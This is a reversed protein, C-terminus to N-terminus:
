TLPLLPPKRRRHCFLPQIASRTAATVLPPGTQPYLMTGLYPWVTATCLELLYDWSAICSLSANVHMRTPVTGKEPVHPIRPQAVSVTGPLLSYIQSHTAPGWDNLGSCVMPQSRRYSSILCTDHLLSCSELLSGSAEIKLSLFSVPGVGTILVPVACCLLSLMWFLINFIFGCLM